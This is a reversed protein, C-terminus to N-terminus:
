IQHNSQESGKLLGVVVVGCHTILAFDLRPFEVLALLEQDPYPLRAKSGQEFDARSSAPVTEIKLLVTELHGGDIEGLLHYTETLCLSQGIDTQHIESPQVEFRFAEVGHVRHVTQQMDRFRLDFRYKPLDEIHQFRVPQKEVAHVAAPVPFADPLVVMVLGLPEEGEEFIGRNLFQHFPMELQQIEMGHILARFGRM